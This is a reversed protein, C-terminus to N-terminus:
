KARACRFGVDTAAHTPPHVERDVTRVAVIPSLDDHAWGGGRLVYAEVAGPLIERSSTWEWVNGSLDLVGRPTAGEPYSGVPCTSQDGFNPNILKSLDKLRVM